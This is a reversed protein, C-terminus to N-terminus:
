GELEAKVQRKLEELSNEESGKKISDKLENMSSVIVSNHSQLVSSLEEAFVKSDEQRSRLKEMELAFEQKLEQKLSQRLEGSEPL